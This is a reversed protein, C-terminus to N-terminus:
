HKEGHNLAAVGDDETHQGLIQAPVIVTNREQVVFSLVLFGVLGSRTDLTFQFSLNVIYQSYDCASLFILIIRLPLLVSHLGFVSKM